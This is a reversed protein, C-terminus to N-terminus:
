NMERLHMWPKRAAKVKQVFVTADGSIPITDILPAPEGPFVDLRADVVTKAWLHTREKAESESLRERIRGNMWTKQDDDTFPDNGNPGYQRIRSEVLWDGDGERYLTCMWDGGSWSIYWIQSVYTRENIEM